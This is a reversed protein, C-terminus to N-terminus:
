SYSLSQLIRIKQNMLFRKMYFDSILELLDFSSIISIGICMSITGGVEALYDVLEMKAHIEHIQVDKTQYRISVFACCKKLERLQKRLEQSDQIWIREKSPWPIEQFVTEYYDRRNNFSCCSLKNLVKPLIQV